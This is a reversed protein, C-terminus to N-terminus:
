IRVGKIWNWTEELGKSISTVPVYGVIEKLLSNDGIRWSGETWDPASRVVLNNGTISKISEVIQLITTPNSTSINVVGQYGSQGLLLLSKICDDIYVYDLAQHGSGYIEVPKGKLINEFSKIIFSKYGGEAYQSPGYIFFLRPAVYSIEDDQFAMQLLKEGALKSLGYHSLPNVTDHETMISPGMSGYAYLSSAFITRQVKARVALRFLRETAVINNLNISEFSNVTNHKKVAALHFLYDVGDLVNIIDSEKCIAIDLQKKEVASCCREWTGAALNDIVVVKAVQALLNGLASGIFGAGGTIVIRKGQYADLPKDVYFM